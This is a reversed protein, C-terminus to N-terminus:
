TWVVLKLQAPGWLSRVGGIRGTDFVMQDPSFKIDLMGDSDLDLRPLLRYLADAVADDTNYSIDSSTYNCKRSGSYDSPIPGSMSSGDEFEVTWNCGEAEEFVGGYSVSGGMKATLIARNDQSCGTDNNPGDGTMIKVTNNEGSMIYSAPIDVIYPDGLQFYDTGFESLDYATSLGLSNNVLVYHTWHEASYSTVKAEVVSVDEPIFFEGRCTENDGFPPTDYSLLIEGYGLEPAAPDYSYEIYSLDPDLSSPVVAFSVNGVEVVQSRTSTNLIDRAFSVYCDELGEPDTSSCYTGNGVDAIEHLTYDANECSAVPGFGISNVTARVDEDEHARQASWIANEIAGDCQSGECDDSRGGCDAYRGSTSEGDSVCAYGICNGMWDYQECERGCCYGTIGDSMVIIFREKGPESQDRLMEYAKNIACCICTGGSPDDPYGDVTAILSENDESLGHNYASADADDNFGVLGVQNGPNELIIDIFDKDLCKALSIRRTDDDLLNPDDCGRVAGDDSSGVEWRMSGSLDTILVVDANGQQITNNPTTGLRVPVTVQDWGRLEPDEVEFYYSQPSSSGNSNFVEDSGLRLFTTYNSEFALSVNMSQLDGPVYLSSYHNILGEVGPFEYKRYGEEDTENLLSTNYTVRLFGGGIYYDDLSGGSFVLNIENQGTGFSSVCDAPLDEQVGAELGTGGGGYTDCYSGEIYLGFSEGSAMELYGSEVTVGDPIYLYRTLNGQGIFGGFYAYTSSTKETIGTLFARAVNGISSQNEAYGALLRVSHTEAVADDEGVRESEIIMSDDFLLRYGMSRPILQDLYEESLRVAETQNGSTWEQGIEDLIGKKNLVDLADESTSHLSLFSTKTTESTQTFRYASIALAIFLIFALAIVADLTLGFGKRNKVSM